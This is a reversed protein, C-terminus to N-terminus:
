KGRELYHLHMASKVSQLWLLMIEERRKTDKFHNALRRNIRVKVTDSDWLDYHPMRKKMSDSLNSYFLFAALDVGAIKQLQELQPKVDYGKYAERVEAEVQDLGGEDMIKFFVPVGKNVDSLSAGISAFSAVLSLLAIVTQLARCM